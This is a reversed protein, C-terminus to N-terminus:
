FRNLRDYKYKPIVKGTYFRHWNECIYKRPSIIRRRGSIGEFSGWRTLKESGCLPCVNRKDKTM